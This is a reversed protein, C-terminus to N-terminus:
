GSIRMMMSLLHRLIIDLLFVFVGVIFIMALTVGTNRFTAAHTPWVVKKLESIYCKIFNGVEKSQKTKETETKNVM